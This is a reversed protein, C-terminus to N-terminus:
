DLRYLVADEPSLKFRDQLRRGTWLDRAPSVMRIERPLPTWNLEGVWVGEDGEMVMRDAPLGGVGPTTINNRSRQRPHVHRAVTRLLHRADPTLATLDGGIECMGGSLFALTAWVRNQGPTNEPCWGISDPDGLLCDHRYFPTTLTLGFAAQRVNEFAGNGIDAGMRAAEAYRGVLPNGGSNTVVCLLVFGDKPVFERLDELFLNRLEVATRNRNRYRVQPIEFPLSWFDLKLGQFGWAQFITRWAERTFARVAPLSYDLYASRNGFDNPETTQLLWEPRDRALTSERHIRSTAWLAPISGAKRIVDAIGKMGKPFLAPDHPPQGDDHFIELCSAFWDRMSMPVSRGQQYGDDIMVVRPKGPALTKLARANAAIRDHSIDQFGREGRNYNWSGWVVARRLMSPAGPFKFRHRLLQYYQEIAADLSEGPTFLLVWQEGQLTEGPEIDITEIGSFAERAEFRTRRGSQRISWCPKFRDQSLTAMLITGREPHLFFLGPFPWDESLGFDGEYGPVPEVYHGTACGYNDFYRERKFLESHAIRWGAGELELRGVFLHLSSIRATRSGTNRITQRCLIASGSLREQELQHVLGQRPLRNSVVLRRNNPDRAESTGGTLAFGTSSAFALTGASCSIQLPPNKM